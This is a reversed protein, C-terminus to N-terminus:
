DSLDMPVSDDDDDDDAEEEEEEEEVHDARGEEGEDWDAPLANCDPMVFMLLLKFDETWKGKALEYFRDVSIAFSGNSPKDPNVAQPRFHYNSRCEVFQFVLEIWTNAPIEKALRDVLRVRFLWSAMDERAQIGLRAHSYSETLFDFTDRLAHVAKKKSVTRRNGAVRILAAKVAADRHDARLLRPAGHDRPWNFGEKPLFDVLLTPM